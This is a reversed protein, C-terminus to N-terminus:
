HYKRGHGSEDFSHCVKCAIQVRCSLNGFHMPFNDCHSWWRVIDILVGLFVDLVEPTQSKSSVHAGLVQAYTDPCLKQPNSKANHTSISSTTERWVRASRYPTSTPKKSATFAAPRLAVAPLHIGIVKRVQVQFTLGRVPLLNEHNVENISIIQACEAPTSPVRWGCSRCNTLRCTSM